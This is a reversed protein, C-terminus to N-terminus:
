FAFEIESYDEEDVERDDILLCPTKKLDDYRHYGCEAVLWGVGIINVRYFSGVVLPITCLPIQEKRTEKDM